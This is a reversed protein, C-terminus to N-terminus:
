KGAGTASSLSPVPTYYQENGYPFDSPIFNGVKPGTLSCTKGYHTFVWPCDERLIEQCAIYDDREYAADYEPNEYNSHNVGPSKNPGYFLQLFNQADPYDAVWAMRYLQVRSENVAKLFADWTMFDMELKIGVKEYFAAMLEGAERSAQDARGIALTLVLRRGTQPDIGDPYGAEAVLRKAKELDFRYQFPTELRDAIGPPVPGTSEVVRYLNFREWAPFDFAANLAQRLKRNPGLVPDKMNIGCYMTELSPKTHLRIGMAALEPNLRGDAGVVSEWNDRAVEKLYDVEGKLFMLWQTSLDDIVLYRVTDFTPKSVGRALVCRPVSSAGTGRHTEGATDGHRRVFEMKHNKRWTKLVYPGTGKGDPAVVACSSMALLWPFYRLKRKLRIEVTEDDPATISAVDKVIWGNPCTPEYLKRLATVVNQSHRPLLAEGGNNAGAGPVRCEQRTALPSERRIKLRYVLGDESVKPLECYGAKLRYPRAAYDIALPTEYILQVAYSDYASQADCPQLSSVREMPCAFTAALLAVVGVGMM